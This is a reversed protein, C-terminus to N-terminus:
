WNRHYLFLNSIDLLQEVRYHPYKLMLTQKFSKDDMGSEFLQKAYLIYTIMEEFVDKNTPEGHGPVVWEYDWIQFERLAKVWGDFLFEGQANKEGVCPYVRNYILDQALLVKLDPLEIVLMNAMEADVVRTLRYRLGDIVLDGESLVRSPVVKHYGAMDEVEKRKLFVLYDGISAIEERTEKLSYIPLDEFVVSGMWHDPHSHTIIIRDIPKNLRAMYMRLEQAYPVFQQADILVLRNHSEIVQSCVMESDDPCQYSHITINGQRLVNFQGMYKM